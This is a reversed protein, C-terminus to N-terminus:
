KVTEFIEIKQGNVVSIIAKKWNPRKGKERTRIRKKKGMVNMTSVSLVQVNFLHEVARKIDIKNADPHVEFSYKNYTEKNQLSRETLLPRKIIQRLNNM